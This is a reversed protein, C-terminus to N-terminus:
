RRLLNNVEEVSDRLLIPKKQNILELLTLGYESTVAAILNRKFRVKQPKGM